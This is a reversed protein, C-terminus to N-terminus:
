SFLFPECFFQAAKFTIVKFGSEWYGIEKGDKFILCNAGSIKGKAVSNDLVTQIHSLHSTNMKEGPMFVIAGGPINILSRASIVFTDCYGSELFKTMWAREEPLYGANNENTKPNKM